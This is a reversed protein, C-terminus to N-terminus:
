RKIIFGKRKRRIKPAVFMGWPFPDQQTTTVRSGFRLRIERKKEEKEERNMSPSFFTLGTIFYREADMFHFDNKNKIESLPEGEEDVKRSYTTKEDIYMELDSFVYLQSAQHAAYVRGIGIEVDSVSSKVVRMGAKTFEHRWQDENGAGGWVGSLKPEGELLRKVHNLATRKGGKYTRYLYFKNHKPDKAYFVAVTNNPGFDLGVYREWTDPINFRPVKFSEDWTDYILGAPRQFIGQYMMDFYWPQLDAKAREWEKVSFSPNDISRFNVIDFEEHEKKADMWPLYIKKYLWGLNYPTTTILIRGGAMGDMWENGEEEPDLGSALSLRRRIAYWSGLKFEDQGAEDLWAAKATFGELASPNSAHKFIVRTSSYPDYDEGFIEQEWEPYFTFEYDAENWKGAGLMQEFLRLFEDKVKARLLPFTPAAVLYDGQGMRRIEFYMWIPGFSTKGSQTGALVVVVQKRSDIAAQQGFHLNAQIQGNSDVWIFQVTNRNKKM